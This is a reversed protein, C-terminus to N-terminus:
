ECVTSELLCADQRFFRSVKHGKNLHLRNPRRHFLLFLLHDRNYLISNRGPYIEDRINLMDHQRKVNDIFRQNGEILIDLAERPTINDQNIKPHKYM